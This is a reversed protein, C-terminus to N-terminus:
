QARKEIRNLRREIAEFRRETRDDLDHLHESDDCTVADQVKRIEAALREEMEHLEFKTALESRLDDALTTLDEKTAMEVQFDTFRKQLDDFGRNVVRAFDDPTMPKKNKPM